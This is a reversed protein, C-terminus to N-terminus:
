KLDNEICDVWRLKARGAKRSGDKKGLFVQRVTRDDSM